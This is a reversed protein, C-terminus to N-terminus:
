LNAHVRDNFCASFLVPNSGAIHEAHFFQGALDAGFDFQGGLSSELVAAFQHGAARTFAVM